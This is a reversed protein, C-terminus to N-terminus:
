LVKPKRPANAFLRDYLWNPLLRLLKAVVGMQWPIVTYSCGREIVRAIRGEHNKDKRERTVAAVVRDGHWADGLDKPHIFIDKRRKDEPLVYGVGSRSIELTGTVLHMSEVLGFGRRVRIIKGAELLEDLAALVEHMKARPAGLQRLLDKEGLPKGSERFVRAVAAADIGGGQVKKADKKKRKTTM